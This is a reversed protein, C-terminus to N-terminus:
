YPIDKDDDKADKDWPAESNSPDLDKLFKGYVTNAQAEDLDILKSGWQMAQIYETAKKVLTTRCDRDIGSFLTHLEKGSAVMTAKISVYATMLDPEDSDSIGNAQKYEISLMRVAEVTKGYDRPMWPYDPPAEDFHCTFTPVIPPFKEMKKNYSSFTKLNAYTRDGNKSQTIKALVNKGLMEKLICPEGDALERGLAEGLLLRAKAKPGYSRQLNVRLFFAFPNGDQDLLDPDSPDLHLLILAQQKPKEDEEAFKDKHTGIAILGVIVAAHSGEPCVKFAKGGGSTTSGSTFYDYGTTTAISM